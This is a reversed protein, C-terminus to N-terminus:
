LGHDFYLSDSLTLEAASGLDKIRFQQIFNKLQSVSRIGVHLMREPGSLDWVLHETDALYVANARVLNEMIPSHEYLKRLTVYHLYPNKGDPCRQNSVNM